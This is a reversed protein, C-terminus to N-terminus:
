EKDVDNLYIQGSTSIKIGTVSKKAAIYYVESYLPIAPLEEIIKNQAEGYTATRKTMDMMYRADTLLKDVEPSSWPLDLKKAFGYYLIDPDTWENNGSALEFKGEKVMQRIYKSEYERLELNIGVQKLQAQLIPAAQKISPRDLAVMMTIKLPKGDKEVIGDGNQDVWGSQALLSKAKDINLKLKEQLANETNADYCIQAPSVFGYRPIILDRLGKKLEDRNISLAIATRVNIDDLLKQNTNMRIYNIGAQMYEYMQIDQNAKLENVSEAPVDVLIDVNGSELESVRTFNENIFRITVKDVKSPGKNEVFPAHTVYNDNRLLVIQSGQTWEDVKFLGNSVAKRNFDEKSIEESKRTDVPGSFDSALVPMMYAAPSDLKLILTQTDKVIFEKIPDLDGAYPSVQKYREMSKKMEEATLPDGNSFKADKPLKFTLQMGDQSIEYGELFDSNLNKLDLDYALLPAYLLKHVINSWNVQQVDTGQIEDAIAIVLNKEVKADQNVAQSSDSCGSSAFAIVALVLIISIFSSYKKM